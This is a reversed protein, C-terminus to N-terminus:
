GLAPVWAALVDQAAALDTRDIMETVTHVHRTGVTIEIARARARRRRFGRRTGGKVAV